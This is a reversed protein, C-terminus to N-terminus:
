APRWLVQGAQSLASYVFARDVPAPPGDAAYCLFPPPAHSETDWRSDSPSLNPYLLFSLQVHM